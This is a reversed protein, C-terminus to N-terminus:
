ITPDCHLPTVSAMNFFNPTMSGFFGNIHARRQKIMHRSHVTADRIRFRHIGSNTPFDLLFSYVLYVYISISICCFPSGYFAEIQQM